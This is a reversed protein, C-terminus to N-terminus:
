MCKRTNVNYHIGIDLCNSQLIITYFLRFTIINYITYVFLTSVYYYKHFIFNFNLFYTILDQIRLLIM